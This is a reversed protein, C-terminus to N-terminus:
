SQSMVGLAMRMARGTGQRSAANLSASLAQGHGVDEVCLVAGALDADVSGLAELAHALGALQGGLAQVHEGGVHDRADRGLMQVVQRSLEDEVMAGDGGAEEIAAIALGGADRGVVDDAMADGAVPDQTLAVDGIDVDGDDDVAPVAVGAAHVADARDGRPGLAQDVDGIFRELTAKRHDLGARAGAVDAVGDLGVHFGHAARHDTVEAAMAQALHEVVRGVDQVEALLARALHQPFAHEEGDFGHHVQALVLHLQEGVAPRGDGAVLRKRGLALM